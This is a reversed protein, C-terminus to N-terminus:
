QLQVQFKYEILGPKVLYEGFASIIARHSKRVIDKRMLIATAAHFMAYYSRGVSSAFRQNELLLDSDNLCEEAREFHLRLEEKM